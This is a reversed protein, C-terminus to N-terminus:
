VPADAAVHPEERELRVEDLEELIETAAIRRRLIAAPRNDLASDPIMICFGVMAILVVLTVVFGHTWFVMFPNTERSSM